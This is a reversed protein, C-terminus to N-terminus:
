EEEINVLAIVAKLVDALHQELLALEEGSIEKEDDVVCLEILDFPSQNKPV